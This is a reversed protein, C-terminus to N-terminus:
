RHDIPPPLSYHIHNDMHSHLLILTKVPQHKPAIYGNAKNADTYSLLPLQMSKPMVGHQWHKLM